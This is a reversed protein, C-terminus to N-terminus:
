ITLDLKVNYAIEWVPYEGYLSFVCAVTSHVFPAVVIKLTERSKYVVFICLIRLKKEKSVREVESTKVDGYKEYAHTRMRM